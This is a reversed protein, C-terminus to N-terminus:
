LSLPPYLNTGKPLIMSDSINSFVWLIVWDLWEDM